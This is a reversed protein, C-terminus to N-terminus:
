RARLAALRAVEDAPLRRVAERFTVGSMAHVHRETWEAAVRPDRKAIERLVWGIAKRIFFENDALLPEAYRTFRPMDTRGSRIGPLLALLASRRVWFDPDSAWGDIRPWSSADRLAIGGAVTAALGDVLAWTSAQRILDEVTGLDGATLRPVALSLVEVAAMRREHVPERWLARAWAVAERRGLGPYGRATARVVRRMDPVTVGLFELDSKLYRKEQTAREPTGLPRLAGTVARAAEEADFVGLAGPADLGSGERM